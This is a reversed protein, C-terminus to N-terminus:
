TLIIKKPMRRVLPSSRQPTQPEAVKAKQPAQPAIAEAKPTETASRVVSVAPAPVSAPMTASAAVTAKAGSEAIVAVVTNVEVTAGAAIRIEALVGAV